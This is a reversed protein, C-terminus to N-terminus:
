ISKMFQRMKIRTKNNPLRGTGAGMNDVLHKPKSTAPIACTVSPHSLVYKLSFQAWSSCDFESVWKPLKKGKTKRFLRGDEFTRNVIVAIGKDAALPLLRKEADTTMISYNFQVFDIKENEMLSELENFASTLYHTIGIYRVRGEEKWKRLTTLQTQVDILNHVQILDLPVTKLLKESQEMENIGAEKGRQHVKTAMFLSDLLNLNSGLEGIVTEANGYTPSTDIVRGGMEFFLRLVELLPKKDEGIGTEFSDSSGLGMAPILEGTSPIKRKLISQDKAAWAMDFGTFSILGMAMMSKLLDRRTIIFQNTIKDSTKKKSM